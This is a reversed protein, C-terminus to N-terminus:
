LDGCRVEKAAHSVARLSRAGFRHLREPVPREWDIKIKTYPMLVQKAGNFTAVHKKTDYAGKLELADIVRTVSPFFLWM